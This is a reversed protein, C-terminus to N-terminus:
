WHGLAWFGSLNLTYHYVSINQNNITKVTGKYAPTLSTAFNIRNWAVRNNNGSEAMTGVFLQGIAGQTANIFPVLTNSNLASVALGGGSLCSALSSGSFSSGGITCGTNNAVNLSTCNVAGTFNANNASLNGASDVTFNKGLRIGYTGIYIGNDKTTDDFSAINKYIANATIIFGNSGGIYGSDAQIKGKVELGSSTAKLITTGNNFVSWNDDQLSWGFASSSDGQTKSVKATINTANINIASQLNTEASEARATELAINQNTISIMARTQKVFRTFTRDTATDNTFEHEIEEEQPASLDSLMLRNFTTARVYVGSYIGNIAVGDGIEAAPNLHASGATYPQYQFGQAKALIDNAMAQTGWENSIELTKGSTNGAVYSLENGNEDQGVYIKVATYGNEIPSKDLSGIQKFLNIISSM